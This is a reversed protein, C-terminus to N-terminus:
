EENSAEKNYRILRVKYMILYLTFVMGFSTLGDVLDKLLEHDDKGIIGKAMLIGVVLSLVIKVAFIVLMSTLASSTRLYLTFEDERREKSFGVMFLGIYLVLFGGLSFRLLQLPEPNLFISIVFTLLGLGAIIWGALQFRFPLLFIKKNASM